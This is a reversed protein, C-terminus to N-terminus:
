AAMQEKGMCMDLYVRWETSQKNDAKMREALPDFHNALLRYFKRESVLGFEAASTNFRRSYSTYIKLKCRHDKNNVTHMRLSGIYFFYLGIESLPLGSLERLCHSLGGNPFDQRILKGVETRDRVDFLRLAERYHALAFEQLPLEILKLWNM